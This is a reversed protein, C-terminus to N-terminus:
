RRELEAKILPGWLRKRYELALFVTEAAVDLDAKNLVLDVEHLFAQQGDLTPLTDSVMVIFSRRRKRPTMSRLPALGELPDAGGALVCALIAPMDEIEALSGLTGLPQLRCGWAELSSRLTQMAAEDESVVLGPPLETDPPIEFFPPLFPKVRGDNPSESAGLGPAPDAASPGRAAGGLDAPPQIPEQPPPIPNPDAPPMPSNATPPAPAAAGGAAAELRAKEVQMTDSCSPCRLLAPQDPLKDTDVRVPTSCKPCQIQVLPM